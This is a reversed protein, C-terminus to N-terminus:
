CCVVIRKLYTVPSRVRLYERAQLVINVDAGADCIMQVMRSDNHRIADQLM